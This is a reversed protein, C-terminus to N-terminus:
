AEIWWAEGSHQGLNCKLCCIMAPSLKGSSERRRQNSFVIAERIRRSSTAPCNWTVEEVRTHPFWKGGDAYKKASWAPSLFRSLFVSRLDLLSTFPAAGLSNSHKGSCKRGTTGLRFAGTSRWGSWGLAFRSSMPMDTAAPASESPSRAWSGHVLCQWQTEDSTSLVVSSSSASSYSREAWARVNLRSFSAVSLFDLGTKQRSFNAPSSLFNAVVGSEEGDSNKHCTKM